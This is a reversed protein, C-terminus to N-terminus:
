YGKKKIDLNNGYLLKAITKRKEPIKERIIKNVKNAIEEKQKETMADDIFYDILYEKAQKTEEIKDTDNSLKAIFEDINEYLDLVKYTSKSLLRRISKESQKISLLKKIIHLKKRNVYDCLYFLNADNKTLLTSEFKKEYLKLEEKSLSEQLITVTYKDYDKYYEYINHSLNVEDKLINVDNIWLEFNKDLFTYLLSEFTQNELLNNERMYNSLDIISVTLVEYGLFDYKNKIKPNKDLYEALYKNLISKLIPYSKEYENLNKILECLFMEKIKEKSTNEDITKFINDRTVLFYNIKFDIQPFETALYSDFDRNNIFPIKLTGNIISSLNKYIYLIKYNSGSLIDFIYQQDKGSAFFEHIIKLKKKNISDYLNFLNEANIDLFIDDSVGDFNEGFVKKYIIIEQDKMLKILLNIDKKDYEKYHDVLSIKKNLSLININSIYEKFNKDLFTYFFRIPLNNEDLNHKLYYESLDNISSMLVEYRIFYYKLNSFDPRMKLYDKFYSSFYNKLPYYLEEHKSLAMLLEYLLRNKVIVPPTDNSAESLVKNLLIANDPLSFNVYAFQDMLYIKM